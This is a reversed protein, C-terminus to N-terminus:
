YPRYLPFLELDSRRLYDVPPPNLGGAAVPSPTVPKELAISELGNEREQREVNTILAITGALGHRLLFKTYTDHWAIAKELTIPNQEGTEPQGVFPSWMLRYGPYNLFTCNPWRRKIEMLEAVLSSAEEVIANMRQDEERRLTLEVQSGSLLSLREAIESVLNSGFAVGYVILYSGVGLGLNVLDIKAGPNFVAVLGTTVM